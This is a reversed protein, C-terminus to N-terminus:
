RDADSQRKLDVAVLGISLLRLARVAALLATRAPVSTMRAALDDLEAAHHTLATHAMREDNYVRLVM